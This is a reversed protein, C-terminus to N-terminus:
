SLRGMPFLIPHMLWLTSKFPTEFFIEHSINEPLPLAQRVTVNTKCCGVIDSLLLIDKFIEFNIFM